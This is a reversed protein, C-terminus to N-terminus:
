IICLIEMDGIESVFIFYLVEMDGIESVIVNFLVYYKWAFLLCLCIILV